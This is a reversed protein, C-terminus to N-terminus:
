KGGFSPMGAWSGTASANVRGAIWTEITSRRWYNRGRNEVGLKVPRPFKGGKILKWLHQRSHPVGLPALGDYDLFPDESGYNASTM